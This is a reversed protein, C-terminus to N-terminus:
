KLKDVNKVMHYISLGLYVTTIALYSSLYTWWASNTPFADKIGAFANVSHLITFIAGMIIEGALLAAGPGTIKKLPLEKILKPDLSTVSPSTDLGSM